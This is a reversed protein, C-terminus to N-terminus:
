GDSVSAGMGRSGRMSASCGRASAFGLQRPQIWAPVTGTARTAPMTSITRASPAGAFHAEATNVSDDNSSKPLEATYWRKSQPGFTFPTSLRISWALM